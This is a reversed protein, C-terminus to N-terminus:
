NAAIISKIYAGSMPLYIDMLPQYTEFAIYYEQEPLMTIGTTRGKLSAEFLTDAAKEESGKLVCKAIIVVHGNEQYTLAPYYTFSVTTGTTSKVYTAVSSLFGTFVFSLHNAQKYYDKPKTTEAKLAYVEMPVGAVVSQYDKFNQPYDNMSASIKTNYRADSTDYSQELGCLGNLQLLIAAIDRMTVANGAGLATGAYLKIGNDAAYSLVLNEMNTDKANVCDSYYTNMNKLQVTKGGRRVLGYILASLTDQVSAKANAFEANNCSSGWLKDSVLYLDNAYAHDILKEPLLDFGQYSVSKGGASLVMAARAIEANNPTYDAHYAKGEFIDVSEYARLLLDEKVSSTFDYQKNESVVTRARLILTAAEARTLPSDLRLNLGDDGQILGITYAWSTANENTGQKSIISPASSNAPSGNRKWILNIVDSRLMEKDPYIKGNVPELGSWIIYDYGWHASSLDSITGNYARDWKGIMKVFEARTVTKSPKFTGDEYGNVTGENVLTMVNNYAWHEASLDSFSAAAAVAMMSATILFTVLLAVVKKM